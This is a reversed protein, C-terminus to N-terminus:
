REVKSGINVFQWKLVDATIGCRYPHTSNHKRGLASLLITIAGFFM